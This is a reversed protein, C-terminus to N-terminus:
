EFKQLIFGILYRTKSAAKQLAIRQSGIMAFPKIGVNM